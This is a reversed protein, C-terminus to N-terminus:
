QSLAWEPELFLQENSHCVTVSMKQVFCNETVNMLYKPLTLYVIYFQLCKCCTTLPM